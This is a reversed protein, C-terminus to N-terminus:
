ITNDSNLSFELFFEFPIEFNNLLNLNIQQEKNNSFDFNPFEVNNLINSKDIIHSSNICLNMEILNESISSV